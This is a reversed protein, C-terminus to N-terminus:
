RCWWPCRGWPRAWAGWRWRNWWWGSQWGSGAIRGCSRGWRGCIFPPPEWIKVSQRPCALREAAKLSSGSQHLATLLLRDADGGLLAGFGLPLLGRRSVGSVAYPFSQNLSEGHTAPKVPVLTTGCLNVRRQRKQRSLPAKRKGLIKIMFENKSTLM